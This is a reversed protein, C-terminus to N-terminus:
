KTNLSFIGDEFTINHSMFVVDLNSFALSIPIVLDNEKIGLIKRIMPHRALYSRSIIDYSGHRFSATILKTCYYSDLTNTLEFDYPKGIQKSAFKLSSNIISDRSQVSMPVRLVILSNYHCLIEKIPTKHVGTIMRSHIFEGCGFYIASHSAVEGIMIDFVTALDGFIAIDGPQLLKFLMSRDNENISDKIPLVELAGFFHLFNIVIKKHLPYGERFHTLRTPHIMQHVIHKIIRYM